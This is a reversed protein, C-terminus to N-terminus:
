EAATFTRTLPRSHDVPLQPSPKRGALQRPWYRDVTGIDRQANLWAVYDGFQLTPAALRTDVAGRAFEAYMTGLECLLLQISSEDVAVRHMALHLRHDQDTLTTLSYRLPAENALDFPRCAQDHEVCHAQENALDIPLHRLDLVPLPRWAPANVVQVVEDDLKSLTSRLAEHRRALENLARELAQVDSAGSCRIAISQSWIQSDPAFEAALCRM